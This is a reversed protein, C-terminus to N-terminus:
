QPDNIKRIPGFLPMKMDLIHAGVAIHNCGARCPCWLQGPRSDFLSPYQQDQTCIRVRLSAKGRLLLFCGAIGPYKRFGATM